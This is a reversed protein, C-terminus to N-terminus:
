GGVLSPNIVIALGVLVICIAVAVLVFYPLEDRAMVWGIIISLALVVLAYGIISGWSDM